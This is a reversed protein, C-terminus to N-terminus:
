EYRLAEAPNLYAAQRAPHYGFFIGTTAAFAFSDGISTIKATVTM